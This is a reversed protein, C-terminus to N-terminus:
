AANQASRPPWSLAGDMTDMLDHGSSLGITPPEVLQAM